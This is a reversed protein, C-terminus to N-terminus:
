DGRDTRDNKGEAGREYRAYRGPCRRRPRRGCPPGAPDERVEVPSAEAASTEAANTADAEERVLLAAVRLEGVRARTKSADGHVGLDRAEGELRDAAAELRRQARHAFEEHRM